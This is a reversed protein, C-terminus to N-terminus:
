FGIATLLADLEQAEQIFIDKQREASQQSCCCCVVRDNKGLKLKDARVARVKSNDKKRIVYWEV